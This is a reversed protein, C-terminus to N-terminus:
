WAENMGQCLMDMHCSLAVKALEWDVPLCVRTKRGLKVKVKGCQVRESACKGNSGWVHVHCGDADKGAEAILHLALLACKKLVDASFFPASTLMSSLASPRM